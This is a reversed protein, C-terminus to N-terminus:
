VDIRHFAIFEEIGMSIQLLKDVRIERFFINIQFYVTSYVSKDRECVFHAQKACDHRYMAGKWAVVCDGFVRDSPNGRGWNTYRAASDNLTVFTYGETLRIATWVLRSFM